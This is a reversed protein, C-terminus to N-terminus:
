EECMIGTLTVGNSSMSYDLAGQSYVRFVELVETLSKNDFKGSFTCEFDAENRYIKVNYWRELMNLVENLPKDEFYLKGERWDSYENVVLKNVITIKHSEKDFIARQNPLLTTEPTRQGVNSDVFGLQISGNVLTTEIMGDNPYSKVNFSTGLVKVNIGATTVIFPRKKDHAVDFFAEGELYVERTKGTNFDKSYILRSESNLWVQTGDALSLVVRKGKPSAEIVTNIETKNAQLSDSTEYDSQDTFTSWLFFGFCLGVGALAVAYAWKWKVSKQSRPQFTLFVGNTQQDIKRKIKAAREEMEPSQAQEVKLWSGIRDQQEEDLRGFENKM